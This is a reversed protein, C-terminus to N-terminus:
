RSSCCANKNISYVTSDVVQTAHTKKECTYQRTFRVGRKRRDTVKSLWLFHTGDLEVFVVWGTARSPFRALLRATSSLLCYRTCVFLFYYKYHTTGRTFFRPPSGLLAFIQNPIIGIARQLKVSVQRASCRDQTKGCRQRGAQVCLHGREPPFVDRPVAECKGGGGPGQPMVVSSRLGQPQGFRQLPMVRQDQVGSMQRRFRKTGLPSFSSLVKTSNTTFAPTLSPSPAPVSTTYGGPRHKGGGRRVGIQKPARCLPQVEFVVPSHLFVGSQHEKKDLLDKAHTSQEFIARDYLYQLGTSRNRRSNTTHQLAHM